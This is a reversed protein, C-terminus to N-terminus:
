EGRATRENHHRECLPMLNGEEYKLDPRESLKQKHHIHVAPEVRSAPEDFANKTTLPDPNLCDHCLPHQALYRLRFQQWQYNYGRM